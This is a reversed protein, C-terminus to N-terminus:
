IKERELITDIKAHLLKLSKIKTLASQKDLGCMGCSCLVKFFSQYKCESASNM